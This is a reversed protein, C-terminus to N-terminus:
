DQRTLLFVPFHRTTRAQAVALDPSGAVGPRGPIM